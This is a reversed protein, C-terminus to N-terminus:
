SFSVFVFIMGRKSKLRFLLSQYVYKKLEKGSIDQSM